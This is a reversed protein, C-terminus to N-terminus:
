RIYVLVDEIGGKDDVIIGMLKHGCCAEGDGQVNFWACDTYCKDNPMQCAKLPCRVPLNRSEIYLGNDQHITVIERM